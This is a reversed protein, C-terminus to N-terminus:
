LCDSTKSSAVGNLLVYLHFSFSVNDKIHPDCKKSALLITVIDAHANQAAFMLATSGDQWNVSYPFM